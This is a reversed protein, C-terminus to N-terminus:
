ARRRASCPPPPSTPRTARGWGRAGVGAADGVVVGKYYLPFVATTMVAPYASNAFDFLAWAGVRKKDLEAEGSRAHRRVTANSARVLGARRALTIRIPGTKIPGTMIPTGM